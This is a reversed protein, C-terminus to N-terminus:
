RTGTTPMTPTCDGHLGHVHLVPGTHLSTWASGCPPGLELLMSITVVRPSSLCSDFSGDGTSPPPATYLVGTDHPPHASACAETPPAPGLAALLPGLEPAHLQNGSLPVCSLPGDGTSPLLATYSFGALLVSPPPATDISDAHSLFSLRSLVILLLPRTSSEQSASSASPVRQLSLLLLPAPVVTFLYLAM